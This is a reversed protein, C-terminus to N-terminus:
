LGNNMGKMMRFRSMTVPNGEGDVPEFEKELDSKRFGKRNNEFIVKQRLRHYNSVVEQNLFDDEVEDEMNELDDADYNFENEMIDTMMPGDDDDGYEEAPLIEDMSPDFTEMSGSSKSKMESIEKAPMSEIMKNLVEFDSLHDVVPGETMIDDDYVGLIYAKAMTDMDDQMMHFDVSAEKLDDSENRDGTDKIDESVERFDDDEPTDEEDDDDELVIIAAKTSLGSAINFKDSAINKLDQDVIDAAFEVKEEQVVKEKTLSSFNETPAKGKMRQTKFRSIKKPTVLLDSDASNTNPFDNSIIDKVIGTSAVPSGTSEPRDSAPIYAPLTVSDSGKETTSETLSEVALENVTERMWEKVDNIIESNMSGEQNGQKMSKFKSVSPKFDEDVKLINSVGQSPPNLTRENDGTNFESVKKLSSTEELVGAHRETVDGTIFDNELQTDSTESDAQAPKREVIDNVLEKEILDRIAATEVVEGHILELVTYKPVKKREAKSKLDNSMMNKFRSVKNPKVKIKEDKEATNDETEKILDAIVQARNMPEDVRTVPLAIAKAEPVVILKNVDIKKNHDEAKCSKGKVPAPGELPKSMTVEISRKVEEIEDEIKRRQMFLSLRSPQSDKLISSINEIEKIQLNESFTVSKKAKNPKDKIISKSALVTLLVAVEGLVDSQEASVNSGSLDICILETSVIEKGSQKRKRLQMVQDWLMEDASKNGYSVGGGYLMQDAFEDDDEHDKEDEEDLNNEYEEEGNEETESFEFDWEEDDAYGVTENDEFADALLELELIGDRVDISTRRPTSSSIEEDGSEELVNELNNEKIINAIVEQRERGRVEDLSNESVDSTLNTNSYNAFSVDDEDEDEEEQLKKYEAICIQKLKFKDDPSVKLQDIKELLEEQEVVSPKKSVVEMDQLLESFQDDSDPDSNLPNRKTTPLASLVKHSSPLANGQPTAINTSILTVNTDLETNKSDKSISEMLNTPTPLISPSKTVEKVPKPSTTLPKDLAKPPENDLVKKNSTGEFVENNVKAIIVGGNEDLEEQIDVFPLGDLNLGDLEDLNLQQTTDKTELERFRQLNDHTLNAENLKTNFEGVAQNLNDVRRLLFDTADAVNKEAFYGDGLFVMVKDDTNDKLKLQLHKHLDLQAVLADRKITLNAITRSIKEDLVKTYEPDSLFDTM